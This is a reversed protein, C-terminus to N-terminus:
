NGIAIDSYVPYHDSIIRDIIQYNHVKIGPTVLIYDIQFIPVIQNFTIGLGSGAKEFSNILGASLQHVAYSNPTDNLDGLIIFKYPCKKLSMKITKVQESRLNFALKLKKFLSKLSPLNYIKLDWKNLLVSQLHFCYVRLIESRFRVDIFIGQNSTEGKSLLIVGKNVIPLKSFIALGTTDTTMKIFPEFYAEARMKKKITDVIRIGSKQVNFEEFGVIDPNHEVLLKAVALGTAKGSAGGVGKFSHVNYNMLRLTNTSQKIEAKSPLRFSWYDFMTVSGILLATLSILGMQKFNFLWYVIFLINIVFLVPYILGVLAVPWFFEPDLSSASCSIILSLAFIINFGILTKKNNIM